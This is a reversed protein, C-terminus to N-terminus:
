WQAWDGRLLVWAALLLNSTAHAVVADGIRGRWKLVAAYALGSLTGTIWHQGHLLGFIVSSVAVSLITLKAFPVADFERHILRRTLYGRFALEEAIPVTVAAAAVRFAIWTLRAMPPLDALATGLPSASPSKIWFDPVIWVLFVAAGTLPAFWGFRWNLKRLEARFFWLGVAAAIFRLPYLWEFYGSAAKSVLSAALIALFPVLYARTAPSEGTEQEAEVALESGMGIKTLSPDVDAGTADSAQRRVWSLKRTAMSFVFAVTTFAIWGAQSHFGVMAVQEAGADGILILACLRVVNLLWVTVLACPILLLAQPFRSERRFYSLWAITFVLVLGLGEMGSCEKAIFVAFRPTGISFADADVVVGSIFFHLVAQVSNFTLLQLFRGLGNGTADWLSQFPNRLGWAAAGALSAFLWLPSTARITAIWSRLPICALALLAIGLLLVARASFQGAFTDLVSGSGHLAAENRACIVAMCLLHAGFPLFGFSLQEKQRELWSYGLGMFVAFSVIGFRALPGLLEMTHPILAILVCDLSLVVAFLYLRGLLHRPVLSLKETQFANRGM